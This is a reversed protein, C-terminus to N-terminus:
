CKFRKIMKIKNNQRRFGKIMKIKNNQSNMMKHNWNIIKYNQYTM